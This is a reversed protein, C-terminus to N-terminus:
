HFQHIREPTICMDMRVDTAAADEIADVPGFFSLGVKLCDVRCESLFRDYYGKGFGVRHGSADFALLPVFVLDIKQPDVVEGGAPELIGYAGEQLSGNGDCRISQMRMTSRDVRPAVVVMDPLSESLLETFIGPDPENMGRAPFYRHVCHIVPLSLRLFLGKMAAHLVATREPELGARLLRYHHRIDKKLM